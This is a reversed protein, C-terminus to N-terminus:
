LFLIAVPRYLRCHIRKICTGPITLPSSSLCAAHHCPCALNTRCVVALVMVVVVGVGTSVVVVMVAVVVVGMSVVVMV